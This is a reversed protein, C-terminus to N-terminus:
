EGLVGWPPASKRKQRRRLHRLIGGLDSEALQKVGREDVVPDRPGRRCHAAHQAADVPVCRMGGEGGELSFFDTWETVSPMQIRLANYTRKKPGRKKGAMRFVIRYLASFNRDKWHPWAEEELLKNYQMWQQARLRRSRRTAVALELQVMEIDEAAALQRRMELRRTLLEERTERARRHEPSEESTSTFVEGAAENTADALLRWVGEADEGRVATGMERRKEQLKAEAAQVFKKRKCGTTLCRMVADRDVRPGREERLAKPPHGGRIRLLVPAHDRPSATNILQLRRMHKMLTCCQLVRGSASFPIAIHDITTRSAAGNYTPGIGCATTALYMHHVALIERVQRATNHQEGTAWEGTVGDDQQTPFGRDDRDFGFQDNFDGLIVPLTRSPLIDLTKQIWSTMAKVLQDHKKQHYLGRHPFYCAILTLDENMTRVRIAALRGRLNKPPEFAASVCRSWREKMLCSIGCSKNCYQSPSWGFNVSDHNGARTTWKDLSTCRQGTGVLTIFDMNSFVKSIEELRETTAAFMPNYLILQMVAFVVFYTWLLGPGGM